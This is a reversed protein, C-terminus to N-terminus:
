STRGDKCYRRWVDRIFGHFNEAYLSGDCLPSQQVQARLGSCLASLRPLDSAYLKAIRVYDDFDRAIFDSLGANALHSTSHLSAFRQEGVTVVPTAMWLAECTTLGGSYPYSDLAIDVRNYSNLLEHHQCGGLLEIRTSEVGAQEFRALLSRSVDPDDLGYTRLLLRSREVSKLVRAWLEITDPSLKALKNFSGFTIYGSDIAPIEALEPSTMPPHYCIYDDPMQYITESYLHAFQSPSQYRDGIIYDMQPLGTTNFYGFGTAQIPAPKMAFVSLRNGSTHGALDILVDIEDQYITHALEEDTLAAAELWTHAKAKLADRTSDQREHTSYAHFTARAPDFNKFLPLLFYGVPHNRLDPSVFGVKLPRNLDLSRRAFDFSAPSPTRIQSAFQKHLTTLEDASTDSTYHSLVLLNSWVTQEGGNQDIIYQLHERAQAVEGVDHLSKSINNRIDNREPAHELARRYYHLAQAPNKSFDFLKGTEHLLFVDSPHHKLGNVNNQLAEAVLGAQRLIKGVRRLSPLHNPALSLIRQSYNLTEESNGIEFLISAYNNLAAVSQPAFTVARAFNSVAGEQDGREHLLNGLGIYAHEQRPDLNLAERYRTMAEDPRQLEAYLQALNILYRPTHPELEAAREAYPLSAKVGGNIFHNMARISWLEAVEPYNQLAQALFRDCEEEQHTCMLDNAQEFLTALETPDQEDM